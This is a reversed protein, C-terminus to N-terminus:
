DGEKMEKRIRETGQRLAEDYLRELEPSCGRCGDVVECTWDLYELRRPTSWNVPPSEVVAQINAVKDALRVLKARESLTPAREVQIRRREVRELRKDDTVEEVVQRVETGFAAEIEEPETRTDELTDHLIAAQLTVVDTVGAVRALLEAVEIAHNVFPPADAGKRRQHRHKRAAFLLAALLAAPHADPPGDTPLAM